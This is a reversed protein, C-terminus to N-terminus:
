TRHAVIRAGTAPLEGADILHEEISRLEAPLDFRYLYPGRALEGIEFWPELAAQLDSLPHCHHRLDAIVEAATRGHPNHHDLLWRAAREDFREVDFEDLVLTGGARIVDALRACSERLPNVHHMAVVGVAAEFSGPSAELEHLATAAVSTTASAPDIALVDYGAEGLAAALSGDGAGVELVRAPAAPLSELVFSLVGPDLV